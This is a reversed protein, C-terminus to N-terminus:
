GNKQEEKEAIIVNLKKIGNLTEHIRRFSAELPSEMRTGNIDHELKHCRDCLTTLAQLPYEWAKADKIYYRHHVQLHKGSMCRQCMYWDLDMRKQRLADWKDELLQQRYNM